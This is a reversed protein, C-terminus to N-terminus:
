ASRRFVEAHLRDINAPLFARHAQEVLDLRERSPKFERVNCASPAQRILPAGDQLMADSVGALGLLRRHRYFASKSV